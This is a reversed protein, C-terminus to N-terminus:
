ARPSHDTNNDQTQRRILSRIRKWYLRLAYGAAALAALAGQVLLSGTGPDLYAEADGSVLLAFCCALVAAGRVARGHIM